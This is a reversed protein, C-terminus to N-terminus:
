KKLSILIMYYELLSEVLSPLQDIQDFRHHCPFQHDILRHGQAILPHDVLFQYSGFLCEHSHFLNTWRKTDSKIKNILFSNKSLGINVEKKYLKCSLSLFSIAHMLFKSTDVNKNDKNGKTKDNFKEKNSQAICYSVNFIFYFYCNFQGIVFFTLSLVLSSCSKM